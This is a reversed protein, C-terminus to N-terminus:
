AVILLVPSIKSKGSHTDQAVFTTSHPATNVAPHSVVPVTHPQMSPSGLPAPQPTVVQAPAQTGPPTTTQPAAPPPASPTLSTSMVRDYAEKLKPDLNPLSKPDM